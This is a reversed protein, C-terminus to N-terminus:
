IRYISESPLDYTHIEGEGFFMSVEKEASTPSDSAHVLNFMVIRRELGFDGRITGPEADAPDTSGM